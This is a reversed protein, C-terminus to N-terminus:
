NATLDTLKDDAVRPRTHGASEPAVPLAVEVSVPAAEFVHPQVAVPCVDVGLIAEPVHQPTRVVRDLDGALPEPRSLHLRHEDSM